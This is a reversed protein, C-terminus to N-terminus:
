CYFKINKKGIYASISNVVENGLQRSDGKGAIGNNRIEKNNNFGQSSQRRM